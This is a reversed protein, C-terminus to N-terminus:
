QTHLQPPYCCGGVISRSIKTTFWYYHKVLPFEWDQTKLFSAMKAKENRSFTDGRKESMLPGMMASRSDKTQFCKELASTFGLLLMQPDCRDHLPDELVPSVLWWNAFCPITGSFYFDLGGFFFVQWNVMQCSGQLFFRQSFDRCKQSSLITKGNM